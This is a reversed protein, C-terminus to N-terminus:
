QNIIEIKYDQVASDVDMMYDYDEIQIVKQIPKYNKIRSQINKIFNERELDKLAEKEILAVKAYFQEEDDKCHFTPRRM